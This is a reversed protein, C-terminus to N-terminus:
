GDARRASDTLAANPPKRLHIFGRGFSFDHDGQLLFQPHSAKV